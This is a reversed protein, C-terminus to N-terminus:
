EPTCNNVILSSIVAGHSYVCFHGGGHMMIASKANKGPFIKDKDGHIQLLNAPKKKNNWHLVAKIAWKIFNPDSAAIMAHIIQRSNNDLPSFAYNLLRGPKRLSKYPLLKELKCLGAFRMSLPLEKRTAASSILVLKYPPIIKAIETAILGGFSLGILIFSESRNIQGALRQAYSAISEDALPAIWNLHITEFPRPLNINQFAKKDAGLGSIFYARM